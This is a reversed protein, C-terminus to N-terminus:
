LPKMLPADEKAYPQAYFNIEQLDDEVTVVQTPQAFVYRKSRVELIYTAGVPVETFRYYGFANTQTTRVNGSVDFMTVGAGAVARGTPSFVRGGITANSASPSLANIVVNNIGIWEDPTSGGSSDAANTTILRVQVQPQNDCASPLVVSRTTIRGAITPGDTADPVYGNPIDTFNGTQGIRYQLAVPSVSNNSGGDIDIVDYNMTITSRGFTNLYFVLYPNAQVNGQFGIALYTGTDFETLGGANFANPNGKNANVQTSASTPLANNAFETGLVTRPDVGYTPTLNRGDYGEVSTVGTWNDNSTILNATAPTISLTLDGGNFNYYASNASVPAVLSAGYPLVDGDGIFPLPLAAGFLMIFVMLAAALRRSAGNAFVPSFAAQKVRGRLRVFGTLLQVIM